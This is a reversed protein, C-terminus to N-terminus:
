NSVAQAQKGQAAEQDTTFDNLPTTSYGKIRIPTSLICDRSRTINQLLLSISLTSYVCQSPFPFPVSNQDLLHGASVETMGSYAANVNQMAMISTDLV